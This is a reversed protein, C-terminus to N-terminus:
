KRKEAGYVGYDSMENLLWVQLQLCLPINLVFGM